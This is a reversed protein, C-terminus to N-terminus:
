SRGLRLDYTQAIVPYRAVNTSMDTALGSPLTTLDSPVEITSVVLDATLLVGRFGVANTPYATLSFHGALTKATTSVTATYSFTSGTKIIAGDADVFFGSLTADAGAARRLVYGGINTQPAGIDTLQAVMGASSVQGM